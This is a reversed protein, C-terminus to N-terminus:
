DQDFVPFLFFFFFSFKPFEHRALVDVFLVPFTVCHRTSFMGFPVMEGVGSWWTIELKCIDALRLINKRFSVSLFLFFFSRIKM